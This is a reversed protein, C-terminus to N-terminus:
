EIVDVKYTMIGKNFMRSIGRNVTEQSIPKDSKIELENTYILQDCDEDTWKSVTVKFYKGNKM